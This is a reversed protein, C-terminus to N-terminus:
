ALLTAVYIQIDMYKKAHSCMHMRVEDYHRNVLALKFKYETSDINLIRPRCERDMCYVQSGKVRTIYIPM